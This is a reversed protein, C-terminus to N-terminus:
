EQKETESTEVTGIINEPLMDELKMIDDEEGATGNEKEAKRRARRDLKEQRKEKKKRERIRKEFSQRGQKTM